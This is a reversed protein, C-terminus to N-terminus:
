MEPFWLCIERQAADPGDSAHIINYRGSVCFDGRVTGPPAEVGDSPGSIKRMVAIASKGEVVVAVLRGELMSSEMGEYWEQKIHEAYHRALVRKTPMIMRLALIELNADEIRSIIRGMLKRKVCDPKLLVLTREM